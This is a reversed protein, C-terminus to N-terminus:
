FAVTSCSGAAGLVSFSASSCFRASYTPQFVAGACSPGPAKDVTRLAPPDKFSCGLQQHRHGLAPDACREAPHSSYDHSLPLLSCFDSRFLSSFRTSSVRSHATLCALDGLRRSSFPRFRRGPGLGLTRCPLFSHSFFFLPHFRWPWPDFRDNDVHDLFRSGAYYCNRLNFLRLYRRPPVFPLLTLAAECDYVVDCGEIAHLTADADLVDARGNKM